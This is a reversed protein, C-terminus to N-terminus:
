HRERFMLYRRLANDLPEDTRALVLDAGVGAAARRVGALHEEDEQSLRRRSLGAFGGHDPGSEMDEFLVSDRYQPSWSM